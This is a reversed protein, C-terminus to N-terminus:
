FENFVTIESDDNEFVDQCTMIILLILYHFRYYAFYISACIMFVLIMISLFKYLVDRKNVSEFTLSLFMVVLLILGVVGGRYLTELFLNHTHNISIKMVSINAPENGYGIAPSRVIYYYSFQWIITRSSLTYDKKFGVTILKSLSPILFEMSLLADFVLGIIWLYWFHIISHHRRREMLRVPDHSRLLLLVVIPVSACAVMAMASWVYIYSLTLLITYLMVSVKYLKSKSYRYYYLWAVVLTPWSWFFTANDEGLLYYSQSLKRGYEIQVMHNMGGKGFFLFFTIANLSCAILGVFLFCRLTKPVSYWLGIDCLLIYLLVSSFTNLAGSFDTPNGHLKNLITSGILCWFYLVLICITSRKMAYGYKSCLITLLIFIGLYGYIVLKFLKEIRTGVVYYAPRFFLIFGIVWILEFQKFYIGKDQIEM